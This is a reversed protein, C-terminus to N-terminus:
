TYIHISEKYPEMENRLYQSGHHKGFGTGHLAIKVTFATYAILLLYM